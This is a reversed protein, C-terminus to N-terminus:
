SSILCFNPKERQWCHMDRKKLCLDTEEQEIISVAVSVAVGDLGRLLHISQRSM